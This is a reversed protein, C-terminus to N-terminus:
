SQLEQTSGFIALLLEGKILATHGHSCVSPLCISNTQCHRRDNSFFFATGNRLCSCTFNPKEAQNKNEKMQTTSYQSLFNENFNQMAINVIFYKILASRRIKNSQISESFAFCLYPNVACNAHAIFLIIMWHTAIKCYLLNDWVFAHLLEMNNNM